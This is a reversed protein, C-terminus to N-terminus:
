LIQATRFSFDKKEFRKQRTQNLENVPVFMKESLIIFDIVAEHQLSRHGGQLLVSFQSRVALFISINSFLNNLYKRSMNTLYVIINIKLRSKLRQVTHSHATNDFISLYSGGDEPNMDDRQM